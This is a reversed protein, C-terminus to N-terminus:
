RMDLDRIQAVLSIKAFLDKSAKLPVVKANIKCLKVKNMSAFTSLKIKKIPDSFM